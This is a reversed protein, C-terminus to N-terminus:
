DDDEWIPPVVEDKNEESLEAGCFVCHEIRYYNENMAHAVKFEADCDNCVILKV